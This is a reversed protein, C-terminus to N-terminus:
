SVYNMEKVKYYWNIWDVFLCRTAFTMLSGILKRIIQHIIFVNIM